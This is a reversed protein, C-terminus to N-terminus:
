PKLKLVLMEIECPTLALHIKYRKQIDSQSVPTTTVRITDYQKDPVVMWTTPPPAVPGRMAAASWDLHDGDQNFDRFMAAAPAGHAVAYGRGEWAARLYRMSDRTGVITFLAIAALLAFSTAFHRRRPRASESNVLLMLALFLLPVAPMIYRDYFVEILITPLFYLIVTALLLQIHNRSTPNLSALEPKRLCTLLLFLLFGGGLIGVTSVVFWFPNSYPGKMFVQELVNYFMPPLPKHRHYLLACMGAIWLSGAVAPVVARRTLPQRTLWLLPMAPLLFVGIYVLIGRLNYQVAKVAGVPHKLARLLEGNMRSAYLPVEGYHRMYLNFCILAAVCLATPLWARVASKLTFNKLLRASSCIGWAVPLCIAIQRTLLSCVILASTIAFDRRSGSKQYRLLFLLAILQLSCYFSDTMFSFSLCFFFPTFMLLLAGLFAAARRLGVELGLEYMALVGCLSVALVSARLTVFSFGFLKTWLAGWLVQAALTPTTNWMLQLHGTELLRKVAIAYGWDDNISFNGGPNVMAISTLWLVILILRHGSLWRKTKLASGGNFKSSQTM